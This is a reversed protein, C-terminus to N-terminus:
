AVPALGVQNNARDFVAFYQRIFVDGLIWLEGSATPLNMGQFGSVCDQQNQLIYASPPLPYQIGNITFVIDPLNNIASCSIVMQGYSDQSAGITSQINAIANSPGTLLSTGTDVIAQCGQSCAIAQGNMTISDVSIQWYGEVSVPVWNLNGTFYSSDIGGF